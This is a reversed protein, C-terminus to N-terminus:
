RALNQDHERDEQDPHEAHEAQAGIEAHGEHL